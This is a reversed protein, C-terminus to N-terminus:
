PGRCDGSGGGGAHARDRRCQRGGRRPCPAVAEPKALWAPGPDPRDGCAETEKAQNAPYEAYPSGYADSILCHQRRITQFFPIKIRCEVRLAGRIEQSIRLEM